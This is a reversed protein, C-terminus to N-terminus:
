IVPVLTANPEFLRRLNKVDKRNLWQKRDYHNAWTRPRVPLGMDRIRSHVAHPGRFLDAAIDARRHGSYYRYLWTTDHRSYM